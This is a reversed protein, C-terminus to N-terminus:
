KSGSSWLLNFHKCRATIADELVVALTWNNHEAIQMAGELAELAMVISEFFRQAPESVAKLRTETVARGENGIDQTQAHFRLALPLAQLGAKALYERAERERREDLVKNLAIALRDDEIGGAKLERVLLVAPELEIANTGTCIVLLDSAEAVRLTNQDIRGPTDIVLLHCLSKLPPIGGIKGVPRVDILPVIGAAKRREAWRLSTQQALDMDALIVLSGHRVAEVALGQAITSKGTGGKQGGVSIVWSM